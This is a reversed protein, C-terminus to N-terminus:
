AIPKFIYRLLTESIKHAKTDVVCDNARSRAQTVARFLSEARELMDAKVAPTILSSWEQERITGVRVDETILQVQAPFKETAPAMVLPRQEKKTSPKVIMRAQYIGAGMTEDPAFGKTPDLTPITKILDSVERLRHELQLLATAPVSKAITEGNELIIDAKAELNAFDIAYGSDIAKLLVTELLWDIEKKVTTQIDSQERVEPEVGEQLSTMVVSKAAFHQRKKDFLSQLELRLKQAQTRLSSDVALLEHLKPM